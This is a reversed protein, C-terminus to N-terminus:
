LSLLYLIHTPVIDQAKSSSGNMMYLPVFHTNIMQFECFVM